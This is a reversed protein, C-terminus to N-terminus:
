ETITYSASSTATECITVRYLGDIKLYLYDFIWKAISEATPSEMKLTDNLWHHDFFDDLMPNVVSRIQHFDVVMGQQPGTSLLQEKRVAVKLVYSHGHPRSCIGDHQHLVHGAEFTFIKEVEFM